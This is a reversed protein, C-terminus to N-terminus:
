PKKLTEPKKAAILKMLDEDSMNKFQIPGGGPGTYEGEIRDTKFSPDLNIMILKAASMDAPVEKETIEMRKTGDPFQVVKKETTSYGMAKRIMSNQIKAKTENRGVQLAALFEPYKQRWANLTNHSINMATCIEPLTSGMSALGRVWAPHRNPDYPSPRGVKPTVPPPNAPTVSKKVTKRKMAAM